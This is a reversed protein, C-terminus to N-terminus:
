GCEQTLRLLRQWEDPFRRALVPMGTACSEIINKRVSVGSRRMREECEGKAASTDRKERAM